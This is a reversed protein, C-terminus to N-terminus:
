FPLRVSCIARKTALIAFIQSRRFVIKQPTDIPRISNGAVDHRLIIKSDFVLFPRLSHFHCAKWTTFQGAIGVSGKKETFICSLRTQAVALRTVIGWM